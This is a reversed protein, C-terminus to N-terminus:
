PSTLLYDKLAERWGRMLPARVSTLVSYAPISAARVFATQRPKVQSPLGTIEVIAQAWELWTCGGTNTMHYLGPKLDESFIHADLHRALDDVFTPSATELPNIDFEPKTSALELVIEVFSRKSGEERGPPGYLRSTRVVYSDSNNKLVNTEGLLKSQAYASQPNPVDDETYPERKKGDFVYDTSFHLFPVGQEYAITALVGPVEGNIRNALEVNTEAGDVNNYAACNVMFDAPHGLVFARVAIEDTLDLEDKTPSAYTHQPLVREIATGLRGHAGFLLIYM